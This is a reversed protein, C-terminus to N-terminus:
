MPPSTLCFWLDCSIPTIPDTITKAKTTKRTNWAGNEIIPPWNMLSAERSAELPFAAHLTGEAGIEENKTMNALGLGTTATNTGSAIIAETKPENSVITSAVTLITKAQLKSPNTGEFNECNLLLPEGLKASERMATIPRM